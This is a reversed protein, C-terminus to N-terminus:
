QSVFVAADEARRYQSSLAWMVLAPLTEIGAATLLNGFSIIGYWAAPSLTGVGVEHVEIPELLATVEGGPLLRLEKDALHSRPEPGQASRHVSTDTPRM